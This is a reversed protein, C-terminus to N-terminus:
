KKPEKNMKNLIKRIEQNKLKSGSKFYKNKNHKEEDQNKCSLVMPTVTSSKNM